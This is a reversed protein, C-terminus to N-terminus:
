PASVRSSSYRCRKETFGSATARRLKPRRACARRAPAPMRSRDPAAAARHAWWGDRRRRCRSARLAAASSGAGADDDRVVPAEEVLHGRVDGLEIAADVACQERAVVRHVLLALGVDVAASSRAVRRKSFNQACSSTQIRLPTSARRVRLSPRTFRSSRSRSSRAARRSRRPGILSVTSVPSREPLSTASSSFTQLLKPSRRTSSSTLRRMM